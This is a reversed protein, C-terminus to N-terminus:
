GCSWALQCSHDQERIYMHLPDWSEGAGECLLVYGRAPKASLIHSLAHRDPADGDWCRAGRAPWQLFAAAAVLRVEPAHSTAAADPPERRPGSLARPKARNRDITDDRQVGIPGMSAGLVKASLGKVGGRAAPAVSRLRARTYGHQASRREDSCKFVAYRDPM